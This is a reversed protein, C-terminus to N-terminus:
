CTAKTTAVVFRAFFVVEVSTHISSAGTVAPGCSALGVQDGSPRNRANVDRRPSFCPSEVSCTRGTAPAPSTRVSHVIGSPRSSTAQDGSARVIAKVLRVRSSRYPASLAAQCDGRLISRRNLRSFPSFQTNSRGICTYAIAASPV